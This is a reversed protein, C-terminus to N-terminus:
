SCVGTDAKPTQPVPGRYTVAAHCAGAWAAKSAKSAVGCVRSGAGRAVALAPALRGRNASAAAVGNTVAQRVAAAAQMIGRRKAAKAAQRRAVHRVAFLSAVGTVVSAWLWVGWATQPSTWAHTSATQAALAYVGSSALSGIFGGRLAGVPKPAAESRPRTDVVEFAAGREQERPAQPVTTNDFAWWLVGYLKWLVWVPSFVVRWMLALVELM